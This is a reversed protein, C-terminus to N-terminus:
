QKVQPEEKSEEAVVSVRRDQNSLDSLKGPSVVVKDGSELGSIVEAWGSADVMGTQIKRFQLRNEVVLWVGIGEKSRILASAPIVKLNRSKPRILAELQEGLRINEPIREFSIDVAIQETVRDSERQIRTVKGQLSGTQMSRLTIEALDGVEFSNSNSEDIFVTAWITTPDAIKLIPTGPNVVAGPELERSIVYGSIQSVIVGESKRANASALAAEAVNIDQEIVKLGSRLTAVDDNAVTLQAQAQKVDEGVTNIQAEINKVDELATNRQAEANKVDDDAAKAQTLREELDMKSVDGSQYLKQWRTANNQAQLRLTRLKSITSDVSTVASKARRLTARPVEKNTIVRQVSMRQVEVASLARQIEARRVEATSKSRLLASEAREIEAKLESDELTVLVQGNTVSDGQDANISIIRGPIKSAINVVIKSEVTGIGQISPTIRRELVETVSVQPPRLWFWLLWGALALFGIILLIRLISQTYGGKM